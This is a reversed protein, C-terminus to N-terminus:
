KGGVLADACPVASVSVGFHHGAGWRHLEESVATVALDAQAWDPVTISFNWKDFDGEPAGCAGLGMGTIKVGRNDLRATVDRGFADAFIEPCETEPAGELPARECGRPKGDQAMVLTRKGSGYVRIYTRNDCTRPPDVKVGGPNKFMDPTGAPGKDSCAQANADGGEGPGTKPEPEASSACSSMAVALISLHARHM